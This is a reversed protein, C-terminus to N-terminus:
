AERKLSLVEKIVSRLENEKPPKNIFAVAGLEMCKKHVSEQIDATLVIIPVNPVKEHFVNLMKLGDVGPMILDLIICDLAEAAALLLGKSGDEAEFLKHGDKKLIGGIVGRMYASDDIILIIAM